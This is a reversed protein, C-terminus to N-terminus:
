LEEVFMYNEPPRTVPIYGNCCLGNEAYGCFDDCDNMYDNMYDKCLRRFEGLEKPKDYIKLNSIHLAYGIKDQLYKRLDSFSLCSSDAISNTYGDDQGQIKFSSGHNILYDVKDCIFEAVIKGNGYEGVNRSQGNAYHTEFYTIKYTGLNRFYLIPEGKTCYLYVKFPPKPATKRIEITKDGSLIKSAWKPQISMLIANM